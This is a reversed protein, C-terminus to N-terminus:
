ARQYRMASSRLEREIAANRMTVRLYRATEAGKNLADRKSRMVLGREIKLSRRM